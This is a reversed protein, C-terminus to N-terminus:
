VLLRLVALYPIVQFIILHIITPMLCSNYVEYISECLSFTEKFFHNEVQTLKTGLPSTAVDPSLLRFPTGRADPPPLGPMSRFM